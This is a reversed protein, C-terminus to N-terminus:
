SKQIDSKSIAWAEATASHLHSDYKLNIHYIFDSMDRILCRTFDSDYTKTTNETQGVYQLM